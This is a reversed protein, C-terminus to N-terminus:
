VFLQKNQLFNLQHNKKISDESLINNLNILSNTIFVNFFKVIIKSLIARTKCPHAEIFLVCFPAATPVAVPVAIPATIPRAEPFVARPAMIPAATPPAAQSTM